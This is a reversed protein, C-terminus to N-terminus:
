LKLSISSFTRGPFFRGKSDKVQGPKIVLSGFDAYISFPLGSVAYQVMVLKCDDLKTVNAVNLPYTKAPDSKSIFYGDNVDISNVDVGDVDSYMFRLGGVVPGVRPASLTSGICALSTAANSAAAQERMFMTPRFFFDNTGPPLQACWVWVSAHATQAPVQLRRGVVGDNVEM